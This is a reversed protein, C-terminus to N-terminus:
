GCGKRTRKFELQSNLVIRRFTFYEMYPSVIDENLNELIAFNILTSKLSFLFPLPLSLSTYRPIFMKDSCPLNAFNWTENIEALSMVEIWEPNQVRNILVQAGHSECFNRATLHLILNDM